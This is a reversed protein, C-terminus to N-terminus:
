PMFTSHSIEPNSVSSNTPNSHGSSHKKPLKLDKIGLGTKVIYQTPQSVLYRNITMPALAVLGAGVMIQAWEKPGYNSITQLLSNEKKDETESM